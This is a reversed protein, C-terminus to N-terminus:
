TAQEIHHVQNITWLTTFDKPHPCFSTETFKHVMNTIKVMKNQSHTQLLSLQQWDTADLRLYVWSTIFGV